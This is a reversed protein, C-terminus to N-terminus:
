KGTGTDAIHYHRLTPKHATRSATSDKGLIIAVLANVDSVDITDDDNIYARHDYNSASDRGLIIAILINVDTVDVTGDLNIDGLLGAEPRDVLTVQEVNSWESETGDTYVAKVCYDFTGGATLDRVTYFRNTIGTITRTTSDGQEAVIGRPANATESATIDGAYIKINALYAYAWYQNSTTYPNFTVKDTSSADLVFTCTYWTSLQDFTVTQSDGGNVTSVTLGTTISNNDYGAADLVVTIKDCGEPLTFSPSTLNNSASNQERILIGGNVVYLYNSISWGEPLYTSASSAVNTLYGESDTVSTFDDTDFQQLVTVEPEAPKTNVWLTYSEINEAPTADTWDARFSTLNVHNTDVPQMVPLVKLLTGNGTLNVTVEDADNSTLKISGTYTQTAQPTFTVTIAKGQAAEAASVTTADISFVGNPDTLTATIGSTLNAGSITLTQQAPQNLYCAGFDVVSPSVSITPNTNALLTVQKTESWSSQSGDVYNAMVKFYYTTEPTLGSVTYNKDTIGTIIRYNADGEEAVAKKLQSTASADGAYVKVQRMDPMGSSTIKVYDSSACDLVFTYWNFSGSTMTSITKSAKSTAVTLTNGSQYPEAYIMVTVKNYHNLDYTGSQVYSDQSSSLYCASNSSYYKLGSSTWGTPVNASSTWDIENLLKVEPVDTNNVWLTYSEVNEAPTADTWVARFSTNSVNAAEQLTIAEKRLSATGNLSVTVNDADASSLTVTANHTGATTPAYTVTVTVGNQAQAASISTTNVAFANDGSLTLNVPGTLNYGTVTFTATTPTGVIATMDLTTPDTKIRPNTLAGAPPEIGIIMAEGYKFVYSGSQGTAGTATTFNHLTCYGNSDGSWGWNVYYQGSTNCGFVNFAHGSLQRNTYDYALYEIPRGAHLEALMWENWQADTYQQPGNSYGSYQNGTLETLTYLKADTYGFTICAQHIEPDNAGSGSTSYGMQCAQGVYRMLWSVAEAQATSYSYNTPGTYEDIINDWDAAKEELAPAELYGYYSDAEIKPLAPYTEPWKYKYFCMSLSTAPCGTYAHQSGSTPTHNYYPATQDWNATVLPAVATTATKPVKIPALTGAKIGDIQYKYKNLLWQMAPPINTLDLKGEEGYMLVQPAQDDGAIVVYSKDANFIYYDVATPKAVSAEAKVLKLNTAAPAKLRGNAVQRNLFSKAANQATALNVDAAQLHTTTGLLLALASLKFLNTIRM